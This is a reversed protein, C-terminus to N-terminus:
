ARNDQETFALVVLRNPFDDAFQTRTTSAIRLCTSSFCFAFAAVSTLGCHFEPRQSTFQINKTSRVSSCPPQVLHFSTTAWWVLVDVVFESFSGMLLGTLSFCLGLCSAQVLYPLSTLLFFAASLDTLM